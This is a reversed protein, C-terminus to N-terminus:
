FLQQGARPRPSPKSPEPGDDAESEHLGRLIFLGALTVIFSPLGSKIVILGNVYGIACAIAFALLICLWLPWGWQVAPIAIIMGAAGIMSGVMGAWADDSLRPARDSHGAAYDREDHGWDM